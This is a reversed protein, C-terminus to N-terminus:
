DITIYRFNIEPSISNYNFGHVHPQVVYRKGRQALPIIFADDLLVKEAQKFLEARKMVDRETQARAYLEDYLTNSYNSFNLSNGTLFVQFYTAVDEYDPMWGAYAAPTTQKMLEKFYIQGPLAILRVHVGPLNTEIQAAVNEFVRKNEEREQYVLDFSLDAASLTARAKALYAQAQAVDFKYTDSVGEGTFARFSVGNVAGFERPVLYDLPQSGDKFISTAIIEKDIAYSIATRFDANALVPAPTGTNGSVYFYYLRAYPIEVMGANGAYKDYLNAPVELVDLEKNEYLTDQTASEKIVRTQVEDLAIAGANWYYPNKELTYGTAGNYDSLRFPGSALVTDASTGYNDAGVENYFAENLPLFITQALMGLAYASDRVLRVELKRESLAKVGLTSAPQEGAIIASGGALEAIFYRYPATPLSALTQWSFVFDAATLPAGNSWKLNNRLNFTYVNDKRDWTQALGGTLKGAKDYVLLGESFNDIVQANNSSENTLFNIHDTGIERAIRLVKGGTQGSQCSALILLLALVVVTSRVMKGLVKCM